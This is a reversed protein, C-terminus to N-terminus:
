AALEVGGTEAGDNPVGAAAAVVIREPGDPFVRNIADNEGGGRFVRDLELCGDFFVALDDQDVADHVTQFAVLYGAAVGVAAGGDGVVQQSM